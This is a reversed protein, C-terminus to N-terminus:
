LRQSLPRQLLIVKCNFSCTIGEAAGQIRLGADMSDRRVLQFEPYFFIAQPYSRPPGTLFFRSRKIITGVQLDFILIGGEEAAVLRQADNLIFVYCVSALEQQHPVGIRVAHSREQSLAERLHM